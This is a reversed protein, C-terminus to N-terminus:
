TPVVRGDIEVEFADGGCWFRLMNEHIEAFSTDERETPETYHLAFKSGAPITVLTGWPEVMLEFPEATENSFRAVVM